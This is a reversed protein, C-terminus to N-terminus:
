VVRVLVIVERIYGKDRIVQHTGRKEWGREGKVRVAWKESNNFVAWVDSIQSWQSSMRRSECPMQMDASERERTPQACQHTDARLQTVTSVTCCTKKTATQCRWCRPTAAYPCIIRHELLVTTQTIMYFPSCNLDSWAARTGAPAAPLTHRLNLYQILDALTLCPWGFLLLTEM